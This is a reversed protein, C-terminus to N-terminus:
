GRAPVAIPAKAPEPAAESAPAEVRDVRFAAGLPGILLAPLLFLDGVLALGLQATMMWAFRSAPMFDSWAFVALGLACTVTTQIMAAGCHRHAFLVAERRDLGLGLGRQFFTLFHLTDDVAIGLAISATMVSGIDMLSRMWGMLGFMVLAPFVNAVMAVLGTVIGAQVVTMVAAIVAFTALFSRFLSQMLHRQIEHVLPMIGTFRASVGELPQGASDCLRPAVRRRVQDLFSGYDLSQRAPVYATVRWAQGQPTERLYGADALRVKAEALWDESAAQRMEDPLSPDALAAPQFALASLTGGVHEMDKLATEVDRTLRLRQDASLTCRRDLDLVVEIPIMPGVNAELWDYDQLIRSQPAFLTEIKVSTSLHRVGYGAALMAAIGLIAVVAHHRALMANVRLWPSPRAATSDTGRRLSGAQSGAARRAVPVPWLSLVGPVLALLLGATLLVGAGAYAGFSRIPTLDSLLLSALGIATTAAALVCPLWGMQFAQRAAQEGPLREAADFYYNVLHIGGTIAVVQVFPPLVILVANMPEGSYHMLALTAAQGFLAIGFVLLTARFSRLCMWCVVLMLIASPPLLRRLSDRGALDVTLGDMAPGALHLDARDVGCLDCAASRMREVLEERKALGAPTLAVVVSTTRGDPGLLTGRLRGSAEERTLGLSPHQLQALWERGTLVREFYSNGEADCFARDRRLADALRDLRSEDLTCGPWSMVVVDGGGFSERFRDYQQRPAFSPPVWELPSNTGTQLVQVAGPVILPIAAVAYGILLLYRMKWASV